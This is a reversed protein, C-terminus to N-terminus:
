SLTLEQRVWECEGGRGWEGKEGGGWWYEGDGQCVVPSKYSTYQSNSLPDVQDRSLFQVM